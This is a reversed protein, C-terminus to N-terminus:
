AWIPHETESVAPNLISDARQKTAIIFYDGSQTQPFIDDASPLYLDNTLDPVSILSPRAAM